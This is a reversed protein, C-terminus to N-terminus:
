LHIGRKFGGVALDAAKKNGPFPCPLLIATMLNRAQMANAANNSEPQAGM